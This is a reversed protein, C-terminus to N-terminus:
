ACFVHDCGVVVAVSVVHDCVADDDVVVFVAVVVSVAVVRDHKV